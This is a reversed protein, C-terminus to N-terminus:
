NVIIIRIRKVNGVIGLVREATGGASQTDM